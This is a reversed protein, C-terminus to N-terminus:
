SSLGTLIGILDGPRKISHGSTVRIDVGMENAIIHALTSKGVGEAGWLLVHDLAEGRLKAAKIMVALSKKVRDQGVFNSLRSPCLKEELKADDIQKRPELYDTM